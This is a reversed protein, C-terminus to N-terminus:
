WIRVLEQIRLSLNNTSFLFRYLLSKGKTGYKQIELPARRRWYIAFLVILVIGFFGGIAIGVLTPAGLSVLLLSIFTTTPHEGSWILKILWNPKNIIKSLTDLFQPLGIIHSSIQGQYFLSARKLPIEWWLWTVLIHLKALNLSAM